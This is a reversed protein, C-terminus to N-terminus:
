MEEVADRFWEPTFRAVKSWNSDLVYTVGWDELHRVIRGPTQTTKLAANWYYWERGKKSKLRLKVVPDGLSMFPIKAIICWRAEDDPFNLGEHWSPTIAAVSGKMRKFEEVSAVREGEPVYIEVSNGSLANALLKTHRWSVTHIIGKQGRHARLVKKILEIQEDYDSQPSKYHLEPADKMWIIPRNEKPFIHPFTVSEYREIGLESALVSADGITASMLVTSRANEDLISDAYDRPLVPRARLGSGKRTASEIYWDDVDADSLCNVFYFLREALTKAEIRRRADRGVYKLAVMAADTWRLVEGYAFKSGGFAIPFRPLNWKKRTSETVDVSVLDSLLRPVRHCEDLFLDNCNERWWRAYFAYHYNLVACRASAAISKAVEYPCSYYDPCDRPKGFKCEVRTPYFGYMDLFEEVRPRHVCEYHSRGWIPAFGRRPDAGLELDAYQQQLDRTAVLATSHPRFHSVVAPCSSKGTGTPAEVFLVTGPDLNVVKELMSVQNPWWEPFPLGYTTPDDTITTM